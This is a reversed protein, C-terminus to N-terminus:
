RSAARPRAYSAMAEELLEDPTVHCVEGLLIETKGGGAYGELLRRLHRRTYRDLLHSVVIYSEVYAQEVRDPKLGLFSDDLAGLPLFEGLAIMRRATREASATWEGALAQALGENLWAPARDRSLEYVVAHVYEHVALAKLVADDAAAESLPIRIKGDYIGRTWELPGMYSRFREPSYLVVPVTRETEYGTASRVDRRAQELLEEVREAERRAGPISPDYRVSFSGKGLSRFGGEVRIERRGRDLREALNKQSPDLQLSRSWYEVAREVDDLRYAADGLLALTPPDDPELRDAALFAEFAQRYMGEEQRVFGLVRRFYAHDEELAIAAKAEGLAELVATEDVDDGGVLDVAKRAHSSALNFRITAEGPREDLARGFCHIALDYEGSRFYRIGRDNWLSPDTCPARVSAALVAFTLFYLRFRM